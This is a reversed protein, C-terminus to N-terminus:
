EGKMLLDVDITIKEIVGNEWSMYQQILSDHYKQIESRYQDLNIGKKYKTLQKYPLISLDFDNYFGRYISQTTNLTSVLISVFSTSPFHGKILFEQFGTWRLLNNISQYESKISKRILVRYLILSLIYCDFFDKQLDNTERLFDRFLREDEEGVYRFINNIKINLPNTDRSSNFNSRWQKWDDISIVLNKTNIYKKKGRELVRIVSLMLSTIELESLLQNARENTLMFNETVILWDELPIEIEAEKLGISELLDVPLLKIGEVPELKLIKLIQAINTFRKKCYERLPRNKFISEAKNYNRNGKFENNYSLAKILNKVSNSQPNRVWEEILSDIIKTIELFIARNGNSEEIFNSSLDKILIKFTNTPILEFNYKALTRFTLLRIRKNEKNGIKKLTECRWTIWEKEIENEKKSKYEDKNRRLKFIDLMISTYLETNGDIIKRQMRSVKFLEKMRGLTSDQLINIIEPERNIGLVTLLWYIAVKEHWTPEESYWELIGEYIIGKLRNRHDNNSIIHWNHVLTYILRTRMYGGYSGWDNANKSQNLEGMLWEMSDIISETKSKDFLHKVYYDILSLKYPYKRIARQLSEEIKFQSISKNRNLIEEAGKRVRWASFTVKTEDKIEDPSFTIDMLKLVEDLYRELEKNNMAWLTQENLQSFKEIVTTSGPIRQYKEVSPCENSLLSDVKGKLLDLIRDDSSINIIEYIDNQTEILKKPFPKPRCKELSISLGMKKLLKDIEIITNRVIDDNSSVVMIDDTYRTIYIQDGPNEKKIQIFYEELKLDLHETLACNSLFGSAVLNIPLTNNLLDILIDISADSKDLISNAVSKLAEEEEKLIGYNINFNLLNSITTKWNESVITWDNGNVKAVKDLRNFISNKILDIKLTPYFEKIDAEGYFVRDQKKRINEFQKKREERLNRLGWQFSEYLNNSNFHTYLRRNENTLSDDLVIRKIRNNYSWSVMWPYISRQKMNKIPFLRMLENNTDFWDALALIVVTWAVQDKIKFYTMIRYRLKNGNPSKPTFYPMGDIPQSNNFYSAFERKLQLLNNDLDLEFNKIDLPDYFGSNVVFHKAKKWALYFLSIPIKEPTYFRMSLVDKRINYQCFKVCM